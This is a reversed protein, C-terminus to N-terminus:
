NSQYIILISYRQFYNLCEYYRNKYDFYIHPVYPYELSYCSMLYQSRPLSKLINNFNFIEKKHTQLHKGHLKIDHFLYSKVINNIDQPLLYYM